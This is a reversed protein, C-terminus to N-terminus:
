PITVRGPTGKELFRLTVAVHMAIGSALASENVVMRPSHNPFAPGSDPRTSLNAIAGLNM